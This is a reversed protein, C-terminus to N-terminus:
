FYDAVKHKSLIGTKSMSKFIQNIRNFHLTTDITKSSIIKNKEANSMRKIKENCFSVNREKRILSGLLDVWHVEAASLTLFLHPSGMQRIM